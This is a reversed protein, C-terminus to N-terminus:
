IVLSLDVHTLMITRCCGHTIGLEDLIHGRATKVGDDGVRVGKGANNGREAADIEKCRKEYAEWKDALVKGCTFCRVPIIM